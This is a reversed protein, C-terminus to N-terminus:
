ELGQTAGSLGGSLLQVCKAWIESECFIYTYYFSQKQAVSSRPPKNPLVTVPVAKEELRSSSGSPVPSFQVCQQVWLEWEMTRIIKLQVRFQVSPLVASISVM